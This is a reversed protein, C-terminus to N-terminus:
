FPLDNSTIDLTPAEDEYDEPEYQPASAPQSFTPPEQQYQAQQNPQYSAGRSSRPELAQVTEAVVTTTYVPRGQQDDYRGTEIRGDVGLLAGKKIYNGLFDAQHRWAVCQIFDTEEKNFQRNIALTFNVVSSGNNTKRVEPDATIRGVLVTRNIM